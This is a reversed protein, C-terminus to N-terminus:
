PHAGFAKGDNTSNENFSAFCRFIGFCKLPIVQGCADNSFKEFAKQDALMEHWVSDIGESFMEVYIGESSLKFAKALEHKSLEVQEKSLKHKEPRKTHM